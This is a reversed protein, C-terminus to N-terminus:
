GAETRSPSRAPRDPVNPRTKDLQEEAGRNRSRTAPGGRVRKVAAVMSGETRPGEGVERTGVDADQLVWGNGRIPRVDLGLPGLRRRLRHVFLRFASPTPPADPWGAAALTENTVLDDFNAVLPEALREQRASLAVWSHRYVLRGHRDLYPAASVQEALLHLRNLRAQLEDNDLPLRIWDELADASTPPWSGPDVLLLRPVKGHALEEVRARDRPWSLVVVDVVTTGGKVRSGVRSAHRKM